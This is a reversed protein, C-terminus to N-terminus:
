SWKYTKSCSIWCRQGECAGVTVHVCMILFDIKFISLYPSVCLKLEMMQFASAPLRPTLERRGCPFEISPM